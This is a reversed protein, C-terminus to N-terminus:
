DGRRNNLKTIKSDELELDKLIEKAEQVQERLVMLRHIGYPSFEGEIYYEISESDLLSKLFAVDGANLIAPIEEYEASDVSSETPIEPILAVGCDACVLVGEVYEIKCEPCYM